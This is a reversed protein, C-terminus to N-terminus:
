CAKTNQRHINKAFEDTEKQDTIELERNYEDRRIEKLREYKREEKSAELLDKRKDAVTKSAKSVVQSQHNILFKLQGFYQQTLTIQTLNLKKTRSDKEDKLRTHLESKISELINKQRNLESEASAFEKQVQKKLTSKLSLIKQLRYRFKKM